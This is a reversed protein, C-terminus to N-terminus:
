NFTQFTFTETTSFTPVNSFSVAESGHFNTSTSVEHKAASGEVQPLNFGAIETKLKIEEGNAGQVVAPLSVLGLQGGPLEVLKNTDIVLGQGHTALKLNGMIGMLVRQPPQMQAGELSPSPMHEPLPVEQPLLNKSIAQESPPKEEKVVSNVVMRSKGFSKFKIPIPEVATTVPEVRHGGKLDPMTEMWHGTQRRHNKLQGSQIFRAPCVGCAYPRAGTHRRMHLALDNSQTFARSCINCVYPREGTHVRSHRLLKNSKNFSKGCLTCLYPKEGSHTREHCKLDHSRPFGKGCENCKYPREGTHRRMHVIMNSSNNFEKGCYVCLHLKSNDKLGTHIRQHTKLNDLRNFAKGCEICVHRKDQMLHTKTHRALHDSRTFVMECISCKHQGEETVEQHLKLHRILHEGRSFPKNCITCIYPKNVHQQELHQKLLAETYFSQECQDCKHNLLSRHLTMHRDLHNARAFQASCVECTYIKIKQKTEEDLHTIEQMDDSPEIKQMIEALIADNSTESDKILESETNELNNKINIDSTPETNEQSKECTVENDSDADSLGHEVQMHHLFSKKYKFKRDCFECQRVKKDGKNKTKARAIGHAQILHRSLHSKKTFSKDCHGCKNLEGTHRRLHINLGSYTTLIKNCEKCEYLTHDKKNLPPRGRPKKSKPVGVVFDEDNADDNIDATDDANNDNDSFQFKSLPVDMSDDYEESSHPNKELFQNVNPKDENEHLNEKECVNNKDEPLEHTRDGKDTQLQAGEMDSENKFNVIVKEKSDEKDVEEIHEKMHKFLNSCHSFREACIKCSHKKGTEDHDKMHRMLHNTRSYKLPCLPCYRMGDGTHQRIHVRLGQPSTFLKLCHTCTLDNQSISRRRKALPIEDEEDEEYLSDHVDPQIVIAEETDTKSKEQQGTLERLATDSKECQVKFEYAINLKEECNNCLLYPLGDGLSIQVASCAMIMHSLLINEEQANVMKEFVNNMEASECMCSRCIKEIMLQVEEPIMMIKIRKNLIHPFYKLKLNFMCKRRGTGM